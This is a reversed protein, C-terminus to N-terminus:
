KEGGQRLRQLDEAIAVSRERTPFKQMAEQLVAIAQETNGMKEYCKGMCHYAVLAREYDPYESIYQQYAQAAKEYDKLNWYYVAARRMLARRAQLHSDPYLQRQQEFWYIANDYEGTLSYIMAIRYAARHSFRGDPYQELVQKYYKIATPTDELQKYCTALLYPIESELYSRPSETPILEWLKIAWRYNRGYFSQEAILFLVQSFKPHDNFDAILTDLAQQAAADDGSKILSLVNTKAIEMESQMASKDEPRHDIVYQYFERAKDFRNLMTFEDALMNVANAIQKHESYDALLKEIAADANPDDGLRMNSVALSKQSWIAYDSQPWNDVVHQYLQKAKEYKGTWRYHDAAKNLAKAIQKHESFDTLLTEVADRAADDDRLKINSVAVGQQAWIALEDDPFNAVFYQYLRRAKEYKKLVSCEDALMNVANAKQKHESFNALLTEIAADANPDDGLRMNSVALSKQSWIAYDAAPWNDVVHQYLRRAKEYKKSSRYHDAVKNVAKAINNHESFDTLLKEVADRAAAADGLKINLIAVGQQAWIALENDPCNEAVYRYLIRAKDYRKLTSCEEALMNVANAIQKHQAFNTLLKEIAAAANPDDGLRMNSAALSKQSWVAYDAQPWSDLVYQYLQKAKEYKGSWGYHDAVKNVARAIGDHMYFDALLKQFAAEAQPQSDQKIYLITLQKQAELADSSGPFDIVIQQYISEAQEYQKARKYDNAQKFQETVDALCPIAAASLLFCFLVSTILLTKNSM